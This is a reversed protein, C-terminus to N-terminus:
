YRLSATVNVINNSFSLGPESSDNDMYVYGASLRVYEKPRYIMGLQLNWTDDVRTSGQYSSNTFTVGANGLVLPTLVYTVEAGGGTRRVGVGTGSTTFDRTANMGVLTKGGARWNLETDVGMSGTRPGGAIRREQMGIRVQGDVRPLLEGRAGINIFHDRFNSGIGVDTERYRYGTSFDLKQSYTYYLDLPAEYTTRDVFGRGGSLADRRHTRYNVHNIRGGAGLSSKESLRYETQAFLNTVEREVLVEELTFDPRIDQTNQDTQYWHLDVEARFVRSDYHSDFRVDALENDLNSNDAYYNLHGQLRLRGFIETERRGLNLELGPSLVLKTDSEVDSEAYFLNSEYITSASSNVRLDMGETISILPASHLSGSLAFLMCFM